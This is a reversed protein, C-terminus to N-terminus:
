TLCSRAPFKLSPVWSLSSSCLSARVESLAGYPVYKIVFPASSHTRAVIYNTLGDSMGYLQALTVRDTVADPIHLICEGAVEHGRVQAEAPLADTPEALGRQQLGGLILRVSDWNHSGFLAGITPVPPRARVDASITDLLLGVCAEYCADTDAKSLWIPPHPEPSISPSGPAHHM